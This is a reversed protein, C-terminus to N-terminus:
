GGLLGVQRIERPDRVSMAWRPPRAERYVQNKLDVWYQQGSTTLHAVTRYNDLAENPDTCLRILKDMARDQVQGLEWRKVSAIGVGLYRAFQDQTQHILDRRERIEDSTLLSHKRRYADAALRMYEPMVSSHLTKYGCGPCVWGSINEVLVPEGKVEASMGVSKEELEFKRCQICTM